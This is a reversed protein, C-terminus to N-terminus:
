ESKFVAANNGPWGWRLELRDWSSGLGMVGERSSHLDDDAADINKILHAEIQLCM